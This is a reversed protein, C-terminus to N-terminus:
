IIPLYSESLVSQDGLWCHWHWAFSFGPDRTDMNCPIKSHNQFRSLDFLFAARQIIRRCGCHGAIAAITPSRCTVLFHNAHGLHEAYQISNRFVDNIFVWFTYICELANLAMPTKIGKWDKEYREYWAESTTIRDATQGLDREAHSSRSPKSSSCCFSGAKAFSEVISAPAWWNGKENKPQTPFVPRRACVLPVSFCCCPRTSPTYPCQFGVNRKHCQCWQFQATSDNIHTRIGGKM